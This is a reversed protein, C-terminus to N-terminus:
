VMASDRVGVGRPDPGRPLSLASVPSGVLTPDMPDICELPEAREANEM